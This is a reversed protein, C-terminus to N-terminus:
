IKACRYSAREKNWWRAAGTAAEKRGSAVNGSHTACMTAREEENENRRQVEEILDRYPRPFANNM